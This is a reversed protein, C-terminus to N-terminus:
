ECWRTAGGPRSESQAQPPGAHALVGGGGRSLMDPGAAGPGRGGVDIIRVGALKRRGTQQRKAYNRTRRKMAEVDGALLEDFGLAKGATESAGAAQAGGVEEGAGAAVM